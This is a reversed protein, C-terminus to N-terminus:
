ILAWAHPKGAIGRYSTGANSTKFWAEITGVNLKVSLDNGCNVHDNVGDFELAKGYKGEVWDEEEMNTLTGHNGNGSEDRAENETGEDFHWLGATHKDAELRGGIGGEIGFDDDFDDFWSGGFDDQETHNNQNVRGGNRSASEERENDIVDELVLDVSEVDGKPAPSYIVLSSALFLIAMVVAIIKKM